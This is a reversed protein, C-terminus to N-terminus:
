KGTPPILRLTATCAGRTIPVAYNVQIDLTVWNSSDTSGQVTWSIPDRESADNATCLIYEDMNVLKNFNITFADNRSNEGCFKTTYSNDIAASPGEVWGGPLHDPASAVASSYDARKSEYFIQFESWQRTAGGGRYASPIFRVYQFSIGTISRIWVSLLVIYLYPLLYTYM